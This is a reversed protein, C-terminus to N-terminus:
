RRESFGERTAAQWWLSREQVRRILADAYRGPDLPRNSGRLDSSSRAVYVPSPRAFGVQFTETEGRAADLEITM